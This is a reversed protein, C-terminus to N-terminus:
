QTLRQQMWDFSPGELQVHNYKGDAIQWQHYLDTLAPLLATPPCMGDITADDLRPSFCQDLRLTRLHRLSYLHSLESPPLILAQIDLEELSETIPGTAFCRLTKLDGGRITLKKIRLKEFLATWQASNFGCELDLTTLGSCLVLSHLVGDAPIFWEQQTDEAEDDGPNSCHLGLDTLLPLQSLFDVHPADKMYFLDLRTMPLTLLLDGTNENAWVLGIDQWQATVPPQLLRELVDTKMRELDVRQLHGLSLRLQDLQTDSLKLHSGDVTRLTFDTLSRSTALLSLEVANERKFVSLYLCLVSLSPLATLATLLGNIAADTHEGHLILDLSTLKVPLILPKNPTLKFICELSTLNPAHQALLGLSENDLPAYYRGIDITAIHRLLPSVAMRRISALTSAGRYIEANISKMSRVAASWERSVAIIQILDELELMGCISEIAHRYIRMAPSVHSSSPAAAQKEDGEGRSRIRTQRRTRSAVSGDDAPSTTQKNPQSM